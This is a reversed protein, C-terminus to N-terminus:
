PATLLYAGLGNESTDIAVYIADFGQQCSMTGYASNGYFWPGGSDGSESLDFGTGNPDSDVRIANYHTDSGGCALAGKSVIYGCGYGTTMGYHCVFDGVNSQGRTTESTISRTSGSTTTRITNPYSAGSRKHSQIDQGGATAQDNQYTLANGGFSQTNSCHGATTIMRNSTTSKYITFGSTCSSLHLGGYLSLAPSPLEPVVEVVASSPLTIRQDAAFALVAQRSLGQLVIRNRATDLYMAYPGRALGAGIAAEDNELQRETFDVADLTVLDGIPSAKVIDTIAGPEEVYQIVIRYDPHHQIYLGGYNSAAASEISSRLEAIDDQLGLRVQAEEVSIHNLRAYELEDAQHEPTSASAPSISILSAAIVCVVRRLLAFGERSAIVVVSSDLSCGPSTKTLPGHIAWSRPLHSTEM